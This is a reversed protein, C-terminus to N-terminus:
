FVLRLVSSNEDRPADGFPPCLLIGVTGSRTGASMYNELPYNKQPKGREHTRPQLSHACRYQGYNWFNERMVDDGVQELVSMVHMGHPQPQHAADTSAHFQEEEARCAM